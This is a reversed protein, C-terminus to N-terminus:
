PVTSALHRSSLSHTHITLADVLRPQTRTDTTPIFSQQPDHAHDLAITLLVEPACSLEPRSEVVHDLDPWPGATRGLKANPESTHPHSEASAWAILGVHEVVPRVAM